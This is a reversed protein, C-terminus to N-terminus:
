IVIRYPLDVFRGPEYREGNLGITSLRLTVMQRGTYEYEGHALPLRELEDMGARFGHAAWKPKGDDDPRFVYLRERWIRLTGRQVTLGGLQNGLDTADPAIMGFIGDTSTMLSEYKHEL